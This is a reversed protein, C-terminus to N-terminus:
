AEAEEAIRRKCEFWVRMTARADALASHAGDFGEGFLFQHAETLKPNKFQDGRGAAIMRDTPPMKALPTVLEMACAIEPGPNSPVKGNRAIAIEMIVRDFDKNYFVVLDALARLNCYSAVALSLPVGVKEAVATTIGHVSSAATPIAYGSPRVILELTAWEAGNDADVLIAGLQVLPPQLPHDLPLRDIPFGGTESDAFLIIM